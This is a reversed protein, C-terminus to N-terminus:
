DKWAKKQVEFLGPVEFNWKGNFIQGWFSMQQILISFKAYFNAVISFLIFVKLILLIISLTYKLWKFRIETNFCALILNFLMNERLKAVFRWKCHLYTLLNLIASPDPFCSFQIYIGWCSLFSVSNLM